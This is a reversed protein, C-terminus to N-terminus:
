NMLCATFPENSGHDMGYFCITSFDLVLAAFGVLTLVGAFFLCIIILGDHTM